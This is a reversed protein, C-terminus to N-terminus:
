EFRIDTIKASVSGSKWESPVEEVKYFKGTGISWVYKPKLPKNDNFSYESVLVPLFDEEFIIEGSANKFYVTVEVKTLTRNGNNKLKFSVGPVRDDLYTDYYGAELDYLDINDIYAQKEEFEVIEINTEALGEQAEVMTSNLELIKEYKEIAGHLKKEEKLEEAESLLKEIKEETEWDLFIHWGEKDKVLEITDVETTMPIENDKYKEIIMSEMEKYDFDENFMKSFLSGMLEGAMKEGDPVTIKVIALAKDDEKSVSVIKYSSKETFAKALGAFEKADNDDLYEKLSKISKDGSSLTSYAVEYNSSFKADLYVDLVNSPSDGSCSSIISLILVLSLHNLIQTKM